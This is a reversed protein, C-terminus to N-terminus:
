CCGNFVVMLNQRQAGRRPLQGADIHMNAPPTANLEFVSGSLTAVIASKIQTRVPKAM